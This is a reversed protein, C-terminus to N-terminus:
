RKMVPLWLTLGLRASNRQLSPPVGAPLVVAAGASYDYYLYEGYMAWLPTLAWRLRASGTFSRFQNQGSAGLTTADLRGLSLGGNLHFDMRRSFFGGLAVNLANSSIPQRFAETYEIGRNYSLRAKWTRGFDHSM